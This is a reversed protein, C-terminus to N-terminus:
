GSEATVNPRFVCYDRRWHEVVQRAHELPQFEHVSLCEDSLRGNASECLGNDTPKGPRAFDLSM